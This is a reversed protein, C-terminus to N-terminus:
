ELWLEVKSYVEYGDFLIDAYSGDKTGYWRYTSIPFSYKSVEGIQTQLEGPGGIIERVETLRMGVSIQDYEFKTITPPNSEETETKESFMNYRIKGEFGSMLIKEDMSNIEVYVTQANHSDAIECASQLAEEIAGVTTDWEDPAEESSLQTDVKVHIKQNKLSVSITSNTIIDVFLNEIESFDSAEEKTPTIESVVSEPSTDSNAEKESPKNASGCATCGLMIYALFAVTFFIKKM